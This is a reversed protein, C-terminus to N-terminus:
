HKNNQLIRNILTFCSELLMGGAILYMALMMHNSFTLGAILTYLLVFFLNKIM